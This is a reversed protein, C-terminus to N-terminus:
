PEFETTEALASALGSLAGIEGTLFVVDARSTATALEARLSAIERNLRFIESCSDSQM